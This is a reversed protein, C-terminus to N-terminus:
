TARDDSQEPVRAATQADAIRSLQSLIDQRIGDDTELKEGGSTLDTRDTFLAHHRGLLNLAAQKDYLEIKLGANTDSVKHLLHSYQPDVLKDTDIAVRRILYSVRKVPNEPDSDDTVEEADLIDHTPLPYFTWEEVLKYFMGMDSRAQEALRALVEEASMANEELLRKIEAQVEVNKLLRSGQSYATKSSFGARIAAQTKNWDKVYELAFARRKDTLAM